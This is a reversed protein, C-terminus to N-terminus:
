KAPLLPVEHYAAFAQEIKEPSAVGAHVYLGYRLLLSEGQKLQVPKEYSMTAGMWGDNRVHFASPFTPNDRHNMLTIGENTAPAIPGSYDVWRAPKRFVEKEDVQGESNRITGGGDHVGVTKAMRVGLPGFPTDGFTVPENKATLQIDIALLWEDNTLPVFTMTRSEELLQKDSETDIWANTMQIVARDDRDVFQGIRTHKIKGPSPDAWFDVGNVDHHTVWVSNHHSHGNPDHPHGMRTLSKGSPGVMPYLFPRELDPAFHYRSIEKGNRTVSIQDHPLPLVQMQPIPKAQPLPEDAHVLLPLFMLLLLSLRSAM